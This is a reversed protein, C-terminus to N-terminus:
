CNESCLMRSLSTNLVSKFLASTALSGLKSSSTSRAAIKAGLYLDLEVGSALTAFLTTSFRNTSAMELANDCLKRSSSFTSRIPCSTASYPPTKLIDSPNRFSNPSCRILFVGMMSDPIKPAAKPKDNSPKLGM